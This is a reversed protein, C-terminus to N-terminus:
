SYTNDIIIMELIRIKMKIEGIYNEKNNLDFLDLVSNLKNRTDVYDEHQGTRTLKSTAIDINRESVGFENLTNEFEEITKCLRVDTKLKEQYEDCLKSMSIDNDWMYDSDIKAYLDFDQHKTVEILLDNDKTIFNIYNVNSPIEKILEELIEIAQEENDINTYSRNPKKFIAM